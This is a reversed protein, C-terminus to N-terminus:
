PHVSCASAMLVTRLQATLIPKACTETATHVSLTPALHACLSLALALLVTMTLWAPLTVASAEKTSILACIASVISVHAQSATETMFVLTSTATNALCQTAASPASGMSATRTRVTQIAGASTEMVGRTRISLAVSACEMLVLIRLAIQIQLACLVMM